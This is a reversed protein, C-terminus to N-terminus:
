ELTRSNRHYTLFPHKKFDWSTEFSNWENISINVNEESLEIHKRDIPLKIPIDNLVGSTYHLGTLIFDTLYQFPKSNICALLSYLKKEEHLFMSPGTSDFLFGEPVYRASFLNTSLDSWTICPKFFYDPNRIGAKEYQFL